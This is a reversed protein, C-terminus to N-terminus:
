VHADKSKLMSFFNLIYWNTLIITFMTVLLPYLLMYIVDRIWFPISSHDFGEPDAM